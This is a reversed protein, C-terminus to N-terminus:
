ISQEYTSLVHINIMLKTTFKSNLISANIHSMKIHKQTLNEFLFYDFKM